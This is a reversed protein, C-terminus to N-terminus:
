TLRLATVASNVKSCCFSSRRKQLQVNLATFNDSCLQSQQLLVVREKQLQVSFTFNLSCLQSQQLLVAGEKQLQVSFTFSDSCLQSQQSLFQERKKKKQLQLSLATFNDSCLQSQQLLVAGEKQLQESLTFRGSYLTKCSSM